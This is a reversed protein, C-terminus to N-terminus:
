IKEALITVLGGTNFIKDTILSILWMFIIPVYLLKSLITKLIRNSIYNKIAGRINEIFIYPYSWTSKYIIKFKNMVLIKEITKPDFHFVHDPVCWWDWKDGTLFALLSKYNPVQVLVIGSKNIIKYIHKITNHLDIDHELVDFCAICDFYNAPFKIAKLPKNYFRGNIFRQARDISKKNVDVGYIDWSNLSYKKLTRLFLGTSCGFDLMRGGKSLKDIQRIRKRFNKQVRKSLLNEYNNLYISTYKKSNIKRLSLDHLNTQLLLCNSCRYLSFGNIIKYLKTNNSGCYYCFFNM